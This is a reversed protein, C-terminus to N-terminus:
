ARGIEKLIELKRSESVEKFGANMMEFVGHGGSLARLRNSYDLMKSLPTNAYVSRRLSATADQAASSASSPSLIEPSLYVGDEPYSSVDEDGDSVGISSSALDLLEGGHETLDKIVKGLTEENVTVKMHIYPELVPGMGAKRFIDRLIFASAGALVSSPLDLAYRYRNVQIRIRSQQLFTHPSSSLANSIGQAINAMPDKLNAYSDPPGLRKGRQDLVINGDWLPDGRENETMARVNFDVTVQVPKGGIVTKWVTPKPDLPISGLGERYSVRRKGFEFAVQWENRLRNEVIELHLAGLGHVLIQGEQQEVRVSPDTRALSGLANQVPEHDAHAQPIVSASMVAAPPSIDRLQIDGDQHQMDVLTDGTRTHKLGILVGVSGFPLTEVEEPQNAYLLLLKSVKEKQNRTANMIVSQQKMTGSYMIVCDTM